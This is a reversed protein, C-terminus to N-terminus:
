CLEEGKNYFIITPVFQVYLEEVDVVDVKKQGDVCIFTIPIGSFYELDFIKCFRPVERQSDECWSGMFVYVSDFKEPLSFNFVEEKVKYSDYETEFWKEGDAILAERTCYGYLIDGKEPDNITRNNQSLMPLSLIALLSILIINKM